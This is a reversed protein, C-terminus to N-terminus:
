GLNEMVVPNDGVDVTHPLLASSTVASQMSDVIAALEPEALVVVHVYQLFTVHMRKAYLYLGVTCQTVTHLAAIFISNHEQAM